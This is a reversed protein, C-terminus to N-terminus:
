DTSNSPNIIITSNIWESQYNKNDRYYGLEDNVELSDASLTIRFISKNVVLFVIIKSISPAFGYWIPVM